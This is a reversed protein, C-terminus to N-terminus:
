AKNPHNDKRDLRYAEAPSIPNDIKLGCNWCYNIPREMATGHLKKKCRPCERDIEYVKPEPM